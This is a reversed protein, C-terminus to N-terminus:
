TEFSDLVCHILHSRFLLNRIVVDRGGYVLLLQCVLRYIGGSVAFGKVRRLYNSENMYSM